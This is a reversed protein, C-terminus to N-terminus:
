IIKKNSMTIFKEKARIFKNEKSEKMQFQIKGKKMIIIDKTM